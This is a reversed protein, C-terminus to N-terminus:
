KKFKAAAKVIQDYFEKAEEEKSFTCYIMKELTNKKTYNNPEMDCVSHEYVIGNKTKEFFQAGLSLLYSSSNSNKTLYSGINENNLSTLYKVAIKSLKYSNLQNKLYYISYFYVTDKSLKCFSESKSDKSEYFSVLKGDYQYSYSGCKCKQVQANLALGLVMKTLIFFLKKM